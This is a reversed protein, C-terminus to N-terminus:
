TSLNMALAASYCLLVLMYPVPSSLISPVATTRFFYMVTCTAILLLMGSLLLAM